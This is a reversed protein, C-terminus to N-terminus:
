FSCRQTKFHLESWTVEVQTVISPSLDHYPKVCENDDFDLGASKRLLYKVLRCVIKKNLTNPTESVPFPTEEEMEEESQDHSPTGVQGCQTM